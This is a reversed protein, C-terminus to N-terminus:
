KCLLQLLFLSHGIRCTFSPRHLAKDTLLKNAFSQMGNLFPGTNLIKHWIMKTDMYITLELCLSQFSRPQPISILNGEAKDEAKWDNKHVVEMQGDFHGHFLWVAQKLGICCPKHIFPCRSSRKIPLLPRHMREMEILYFQQSRKWICMVMKKRRRAFVWLWQVSDAM